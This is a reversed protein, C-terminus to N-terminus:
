GRLDICELDDPVYIGGNFSAHAEATYREKRTGVTRSDETHWMVLNAVRHKRALEAAEKVTGHGIAHPHYVDADSDLCFAEHMMWDADDLYHECCPPCPEDGSFVISQGDPAVMRFGYQEAKEAQMDFFTLEHGVVTRTEGDSVPCFLIDKGIPRCQKEGLTLQCITLIKEALRAHCHIRLPDKKLGRMYMHSSFRIVWIIGLCHDIHEHSVFIDTLDQLGVGASKLQRLIGNGGGGDVLLRGDPGELLFCTNYYHVAGAAGTGLVILKDM